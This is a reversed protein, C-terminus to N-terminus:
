FRTDERRVKKEIDKLSSKRKDEKEGSRGDGAARHSESLSHL